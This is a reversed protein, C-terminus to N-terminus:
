SQGSGNGITQSALEDYIQLLQDAWVDAAFKQSAVERNREGLQMRLQPNDILTRLGQALAHPRKPEVLIGQDEHVVEPVDGVCTGVIPLGAAMAELMAVPLGEWLSSSVFIDAAALLQPVDNRRGLLKVHDALGREQVQSQLMARQSGDGAILLRVHAHTQVLDDIAEIMDSLGKQPELRCVAVLITDNAQKLWPSRLAMYATSELAPPIPVANPVVQIARNGLRRQHARAISWGVALVRHSEQRLFHSELRSHLPRDQSKMKTNHLTTVRPVNQLSGSASGLINALTLHTHIVSPRLKRLVNNLQAFRVPDFLKRGYVHLVTTGHDRVTQEVEPDNKRLTIVTFPVQCRALEASLTVILTEAGGVRLGNIMHVVSLKSRSSSVQTMYSIKGVKISTM